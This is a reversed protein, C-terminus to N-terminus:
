RAVVARHPYGRVPVAPVARHGGRRGGFGAGRRHHRLHLRHGSPHPVPVERALKGAGGRVPRRRVARVALPHAPLGHRLRRRRREVSEHVGHAPRPPIVLRLHGRPRPRGRRRDRHADHAAAGRGAVHGRPHGRRLDHGHGPRVPPGPHHAGSGPRAPGRARLVGVRHVAGRPLGHVSAGGGARARDERVGFGAPQGFRDHAM